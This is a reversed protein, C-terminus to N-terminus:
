DNGKSHKGGCQCHDAALQDLEDHIVVSDINHHFGRCRVVRDDKGWYGRSRMGRVSGSVDINSHASHSMGTSGNEVWALGTRKDRYLAVYESVQKLLIKAM